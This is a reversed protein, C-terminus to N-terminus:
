PLPNGRCLNALAWASNHTIIDDTTKNLLNIVLQIAGENLLIDRFKTECSLNGIM